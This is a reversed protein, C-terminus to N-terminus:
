DGKKASAKADTASKQQAELSKDYAKMAAEIESAVPPDARLIPSPNPGAPGEEHWIAKNSHVVEAAQSRPLSIIEGVETPKLRGTIFFSSKVRLKYLKRPDRFSDQTLAM